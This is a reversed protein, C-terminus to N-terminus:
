CLDDKTIDLSKDVYTTTLEEVNALCAIKEEKIYLDVVGSTITFNHLCSKMIFDLLEHKNM